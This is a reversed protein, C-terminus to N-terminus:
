PRDLLYARKRARSRDDKEEHPIPFKEKKKEVCKFILDNKEGNDSAM